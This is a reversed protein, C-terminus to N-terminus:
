KALRERIWQSKQELLFLGCGVEKFLAKSEAMKAIYPWGGKHYMGSKQVNQQLGITWLFDEMICKMQM